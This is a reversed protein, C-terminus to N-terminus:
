ACWRRLMASFDYRMSNATAIAGDITLLEGSVNARDLCLQDVRAKAKADGDVHIRFGLASIEADIEKIRIEAREKKDKLQAITRDIIECDTWDTM